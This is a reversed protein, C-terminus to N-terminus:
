RVNIKILNGNMRDSLLRSKGFSITLVGNQLSTQCSTTDVNIPLGMNRNWISASFNKSSGWFSNGLQQETVSNNSPINIEIQPRPRATKYINIKISENRINSELGLVVIKFYNPDDYTRVNYKKNKVFSNIKSMSEWTKDVATRLHDFKQRLFPESDEQNGSLPWWDWSNLKTFNLSIMGAAVIFILIKM